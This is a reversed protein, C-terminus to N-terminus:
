EVKEKIKGNFKEQSTVGVFDHICGKEAGERSFQEEL